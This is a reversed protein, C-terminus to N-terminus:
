IITVTQQLNKLEMKNLKWQQLAKDFQSEVIIKGKQNTGYAVIEFNVDSKFPYM